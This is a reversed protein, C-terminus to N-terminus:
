NRSKIEALKAEIDDSIALFDQDIVLQTKTLNNLSEVIVSTDGYSNESGGVVMSVKDGILDFKNGISFDANIVPPTDIFIAQSRLSSGERIVKDIAGAMIVPNITYAVQTNGKRNISETLTIIETTSTFSNLIISALKIGAAQSVPTKVVAYGNADKDAEIGQINALKATLYSAKAKAFISNYAKEVKDIEKLDGDLEEGIRHLLELQILSDSVAKLITPQYVNYGNESNGIVTLAAKIAYTIYTVLNAVTYAKFIETSFNSSENSITEIVHSTIAQYDIDIDKDGQNRLNNIVEKTAGEVKVLDLGRENSVIVNVKTDKAARKEKNSKPAKVLEIALEKLAQKANADIAEREKVIRAAVAKDRMVQIAEFNNAKFFDFAKDVNYKTFIGAKFAKAVERNFDKIAKDAAKEARIESKTKM